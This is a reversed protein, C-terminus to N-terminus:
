GQFPLAGATACPGCCTPWRPAALPISPPPGSRTSWRSEPPSSTRTRDVVRAAGLESLFAASDPSGTSAVVEYGRAALMAVATSGVGGSAGTVLVPGVGPVLGMHELRQISLASTFGATGLAMAQRPTLGDPLRVAWEAPVRAIEAYGGHHGTGLEYGHVIVDDGARFRDDSSDLVTGALDVGGILPYLRAVRNGPRTVLGDKYNITSYAVRLTLEGPMLDDSSWRELRVVIAEGEQRAVLARFSTM